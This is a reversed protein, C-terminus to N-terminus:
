AAISDGGSTPDRGGVALTIVKSVDRCRVSDLVDNNLMGCSMRTIRVSLSPAPTTQDKMVAVDQTSHADTLHHFHFDFTASKQM